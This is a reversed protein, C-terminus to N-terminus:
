PTKSREWLPKACRFVWPNVRGREDIRFKTEYGGAIAQDRYLKAEIYTDFRRWHWVGNPMRWEVTYIM